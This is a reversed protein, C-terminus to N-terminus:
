LLLFSIATFNLFILVPFLLTAYIQPSYFILSHPLSCLHALCWANKIEVMIFTGKQFARSILQSFTLLHWDIWDFQFFYEFFVFLKLSNLDWHSMFNTQKNRECGEVEGRKMIKKKKKVGGTMKVNAFQCILTSQHQIKWYHDSHVNWNRKPVGVVGDSILRQIKASYCKQEGCFGEKTQMTNNQWRQTTEFLLM